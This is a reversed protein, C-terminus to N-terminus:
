VNGSMVSSIQAIIIIVLNLKVLGVTVSPLRAIKTILVNLMNSTTSAILKKVRLTVKRSYHADLNLANKTIQASNNISIMKDNVIMVFLILARKISIHGILQFFETQMMKM